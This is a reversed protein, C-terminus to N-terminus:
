KITVEMDELLVIEDDETQLLEGDELCVSNILFEYNSENSPVCEASTKMCYKGAWEGETSLFADGIKLHSFKIKKNKKNAIKM